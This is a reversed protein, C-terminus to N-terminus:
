LPIVVFLAFVNGVASSDNAVSQICVKLSHCQRVSRSHAFKVAQGQAVSRAPALLTAM